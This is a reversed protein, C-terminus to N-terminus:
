TECYSIIYGEQESNKIFKRVEERKLLHCCDHTKALVVGVPKQNVWVVIYKYEEVSFAERTDGFVALYVCPTIKYVRVVSHYHGGDTHMPGGYEEWCDCPEEMVVVPSLEELGDVLEALEEDCNLGYVDDYSFGEVYVDGLVGRDCYERQEEEYRCEFEKREMAEGGKM